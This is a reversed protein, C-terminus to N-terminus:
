AFAISFVLAPSGQSGCLNWPLRARLIKHIKQFIKSFGISMGQKM